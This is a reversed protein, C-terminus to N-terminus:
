VLGRNELKNEVLDIATGVTKAFEVDDDSLRIGFEVELAAPINVMDLSDASLDAWTADDHAQACSVALERAIVTRARRRIMPITVPPNM